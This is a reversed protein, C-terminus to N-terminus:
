RMLPWLQISEVGLEDETRGLIYDVGIELIDLDGPTDVFGLVRGAPDFVTWLPALRDEDPFDYERVWLHGAPDVKVESFAPFNEALPSSGYAERLQELQEENPPPTESRHASLWSEVWLKLDAPATARPVHERRVIRALTGDARFAKIEYRNTAGVFVLDSWFGAVFRFGYAVLRDGDYTEAFPFDGLSIALAGDGNLLEVVTDGSGAMYSTSLITGDRAVARPARFRNEPGRALAFSRGFDGDTDFVAIGTEFRTFWAVISDGAWPEVRALDGTFEGPGEGRGGWNELHTGLADYVRLQSSGMNAVVIRGDSLRTASYAQHLLYPEEGELVGISASPAPGIRWGLRSGDPPRANEVIRIGASDREEAPPFGVRSADQRAKLPSSAGFAMTALVATLASFATAPQSKM